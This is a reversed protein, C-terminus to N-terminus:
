RGGSDTRVVEFKLTPPSSAETGFPELEIVAVTAGGCQACQPLLGPTAAEFLFRCKACRM